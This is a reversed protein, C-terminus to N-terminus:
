CWSDTFCQAKHDVVSSLIDRGQTRHQKKSFAAMQEKRIRNDSTGTELRDISDQNGGVPFKASSDDLKFLAAFLTGTISFLQQM